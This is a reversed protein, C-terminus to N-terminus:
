ETCKLSYFWPGVGVNYCAYTGWVYENRDFVNDDSDSTKQTITVAEREQFIFPKIASGTHFLYWESSSTLRPEVVVKIGLQSGINGPAAAATNSGFVKAISPMSTIELAVQERDPHVLLTDGIVGMPTGSESKFGRMAARAAFLNDLNLARSTLLNSQSGPVSANQDIPHSASFLAVGDYGTPNALLVDVLLRWPHRAAVEGLRAFRPSYTGINDDLIDRRRVGITKEWEKNRLTYSSAALREIVRPGVFERMDDLDAMLGYVNESTSSSVRTAFVDLYTPTAKYADQFLGSFQANLQRIRAPSVAGSM